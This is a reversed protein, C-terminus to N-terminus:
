KTAAVTDLFLALALALSLSLWVQAQAAYKEFAAAPMESPYVYGQKCSRCFPQSRSLALSCSLSLSLSLSFSVAGSTGGFFTDNATATTAYYRSWFM